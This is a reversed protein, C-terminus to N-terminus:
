KGLRRQLYVRRGAYAYPEYVGRGFGNCHERQVYEGAPWIVQWCSPGPPLRRQAASATVITAMLAAVATLAITCASKTRM